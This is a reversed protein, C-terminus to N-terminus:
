VVSLKRNDGVEDSGTQCTERGGSCLGCVMIVNSLVCVAPSPCVAIEAPVVLHNGSQRVAYPWKTKETALIVSCLEM